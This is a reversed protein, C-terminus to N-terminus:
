CYDEGRANATSQECRLEQALDVVLIDDLKDIDVDVVGVHGEVEGEIVGLVVEIYAVGMEEERIEAEENM